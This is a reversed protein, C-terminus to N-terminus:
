QTVCEEGANKIMSGLRQASDGNIRIPDSDCGEFRVTVMGSEEVHIEVGNPQHVTQNM